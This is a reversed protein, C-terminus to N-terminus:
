QTRLLDRLDRLDREVDLREQNEFSRLTRLQDAAFQDELTIPASLPVSESVSRRSTESMSERVEAATPASRSRASLERTARAVPAPGPESFPDRQRNEICEKVSKWIAPNTWDATASCEPVSKEVEDWGKIADAVRLVASAARHRGSAHFAGAGPATMAAAPSGMAALLACAICIRTRM